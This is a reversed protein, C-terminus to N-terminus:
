LVNHFAIKNEILYVYRRFSKSLVPIFVVQAHLLAHTLALCDQYKRPCTNQVYLYM